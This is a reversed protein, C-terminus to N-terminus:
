QWFQRLSLRSSRSSPRSSGSRNRAWSTAGLAAAALTLTQWLRYHWLQAAAALAASLSAAALAAAALHQWGTALSYNFILQDDDETQSDTTLWRKSVYRYSDLFGYKM